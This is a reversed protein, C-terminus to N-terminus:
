RTKLSRLQDLELSLRAVTRNLQANETELRALREESLLRDRLWSFGPNSAAHSALAELFVPQGCGLGELVDRIPRGSVIEEHAQKLKRLAPAPNEKRLGSGETEVEVGAGNKRAQTRNASNTSRVYDSIQEMESPVLYDSLRHFMGLLRTGSVRIRLNGRRITRDMENSTAYEGMVASCEEANRCDGFQRIVELDAHFFRRNFIWIPVALLVAHPYLTKWFAKREYAESSCLYYACFADRLTAFQPISTSEAM